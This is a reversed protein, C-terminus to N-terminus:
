GQNQVPKAAERDLSTRNDQTQRSDTVAVLIGGLMNQVVSLAIFAVVAKVIAVQLSEGQVLLIVGTILFAGLGIFLSILKWFDHM